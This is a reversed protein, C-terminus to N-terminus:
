IANIEISPSHDCLRLNGISMILHWKCKLEECCFEIKHLKELERLNTKFVKIVIHGPVTNNTNITESHIIADHVNLCHSLHAYLQLQLFTMVYHFGFFGVISKNLSSSRRTPNYIGTIFM